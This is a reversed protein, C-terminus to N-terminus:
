VNIYEIISVENLENLPIWYAPSVNNNNLPFEKIRDQRLWGVLAIQDLQYVNYGHALIWFVVEGHLGVQDKQIMLKFNDKITSLPYVRLATKVDIKTNNILLDYEDSAGCVHVSDCFHIDKNKLYDKLALEGIHGLIVDERQNTQFRSARLTGNRLSEKIALIEKDAMCIAQELWETRMNIIVM